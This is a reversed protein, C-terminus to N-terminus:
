DKYQFFSAFSPYGKLNFCIIAILFSSFQRMDTIYTHITTCLILLAADVPAARDNGFFGFTFRAYRLGLFTYM